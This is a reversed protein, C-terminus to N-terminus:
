RQKVKSHDTGYDRQFQAVYRNAERTRGEIVANLARQFFNPKNNM